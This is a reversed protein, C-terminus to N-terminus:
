VERYKELPKLAALFERQLAEYGEQNISRISLGALRSYIVGNITVEGTITLPVGDPVPMVSGSRVTEALAQYLAAVAETVAEPDDPVLFQRRIRHEGGYAVSLVVAHVTEPM